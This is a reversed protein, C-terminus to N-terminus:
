IELEDMKYTWLEQVRGLEAPKTCTINTIWGKEEDTIVNPKDSRASDNMAYELGVAIYKNVFNAATNHHNGITRAIETNSMGEASYLIIKTRQVKRYEETQSRAIKKLIELDGDKM